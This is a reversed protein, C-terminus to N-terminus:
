VSFENRDFRQSVTRAEAARDSPAQHLLLTVRGLRRCGRLSLIPWRPWRPLQITCDVDAFFVVKFIANMENPQVVANHGRKDQVVQAAAVEQSM